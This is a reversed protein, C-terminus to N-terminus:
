TYILYPSTDFKWLIVHYLMINQYIKLFNGFWLCDESIKAIKKKVCLRSLISSHFDCLEAPYNSKVDWSFFSAM